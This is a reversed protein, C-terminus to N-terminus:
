TRNGSMEETFDDKCMLPIIDFSRLTEFYGKWTSTGITETKKSVPYEVIIPDFNDPDTKMNQELKEKLRKADGYNRLLALTVCENEAKHFSDGTDYFAVVLYLPQSKDIDNKDVFFDWSPAEKEHYISYGKFVHNTYTDDADWRDSSDAERTVERHSEHIIYISYKSM